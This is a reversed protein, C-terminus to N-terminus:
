KVVIDNHVMRVGAVGRALVGAKNIEDFTTVFGSLQVDGKFTEVNIETVKLGPDNFFATKVRATIVSDDIYEGTSSQDRTSSCGTSFLLALAIISTSILQNRKM